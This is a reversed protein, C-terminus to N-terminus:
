GLLRRKLRAVLGPDREIPEWLRFADQIEVNRSGVLAESEPAVVLLNIEYHGYYGYKLLTRDKFGSVFEAVDDPIDAAVVAFTFETSLHEEDAEIWEDALDHGFSVLREVDAVRVRDARQVFLHERSEHHGYTISPHLFSKRSEMRLTGKLTFTEGRVRHDKDLDYNFMLRDSVRDVYEDEWVPVDEPLEEAPPEDEPLEEESPENESTESV